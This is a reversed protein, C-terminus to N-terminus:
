RALLAGIIAGITVALGHVALAVLTAAGALINFGPIPILTAFFTIVVASVIAPLISAIIANGVGGSRYGGVAGAILQGFPPLWFLLLSLIVMWLAGEGISGPRRMTNTVM